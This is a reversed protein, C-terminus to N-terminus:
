MEAPPTTPKNALAQEEELKKLETLLLNRETKYEGLKMEWYAEKSKNLQGNLKNRRRLSFLIIKTRNIVKNMYDAYNKISDIQYGPFRNMFEHLKATLQNLEARPLKSAMAEDQIKCSVDGNKDYYHIMRETTVSDVNFQGIAIKTIDFEEAKTGESTIWSHLVPGTKSLWLSVPSHWDIKDYEFGMHNALEDIQENTLGEFYEPSNQYSENRM